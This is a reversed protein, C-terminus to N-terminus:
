FLVRRAKTGPPNYLVVEDGTAGKFEEFQQIRAVMSSLLPHDHVEADECVPVVLLDTESATPELSKLHLM